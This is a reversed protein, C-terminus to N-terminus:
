LQQACEGHLRFLRLFWGRMFAGAHSLRSMELARWAMFAALEGAGANKAAAITAPGVVGDPSVRLALQMLRVGNTVGHLVSADFLALAWAAPLEDCKCRAWYDRRYIERAGELTLARVDVDPHSASAIGFKTGGGPDDPHETYVTGEADIIWDFAGDFGVTLV